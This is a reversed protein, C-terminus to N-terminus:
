AHQGEKQHIHSRYILFLGFAIMPLSLLQGMSIHSFFGETLYSDKERFIEVFFRFAGYGVLFAGSLLYKKYGRKLISHLIIFLVIGELGAEYLQSPHRPLEGGSPFIMGWPMNTVKGYLEGNVFNALRGFFLGFCISPAMRDIIDFFTTKHKKAFLYTALIVGLMGGHFSMGGQWTYLIEQPHSLYFSPQYFFVYGLRGGLIIGLVIWLFIDDAKEATLAGTPHQTLVRKFYSLGVLFGAVYALGYWHVSLGLIEFAVPNLHVTYPM